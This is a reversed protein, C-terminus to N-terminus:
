RVWLIIICTKYCSILFGGVFAQCISICPISYILIIVHADAVSERRVSVSPTVGAAVGTAVCTVLSVGVVPSVVM